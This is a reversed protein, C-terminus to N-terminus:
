SLSSTNQTHQLRAKHIKILEFPLFLESSNGRVWEKQDEHLKDKSSKVEVFVYGDPKYALLDPWGVYRGWYDTVLYRLIRHIVDPALIKVIKRAKEIGDARHAWLYQRLGASPEIWYDFTWLLEEKELPLFAFHENIALSRREAYGSTGFDEPLVTHIMEGKRKEDFAHRDGFMVPQVEPDEHDQILLWMFIGFLAHFPVSETFLVEYGLRKYYSEAFQEASLITDGEMIGVKRGEQKVHTAKLNIIKVNNKTLVENSSQDRYTYKPTSAHLSKIEEIIQREIAKYVDPYTGQISNFDYGHNDAWQAFRKNTEFFIERWYYREIKSTRGYIEALPYAEEPLNRCTNCINKQFGITVNVRRRTKLETGYSTQHPLFKCAFEEDCACMMVEGCSDCRYKRIFEYPNICSVSKHDCRDM